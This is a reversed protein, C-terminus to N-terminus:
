KADQKVALVSDNARIFAQKVLHTDIGSQIKENSITSVIRTPTPTVRVRSVELSTCERLLENERCDQYSFMEAIM